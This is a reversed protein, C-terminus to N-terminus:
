GPSSPLLFYLFDQIPFYHLLIQWVPHSPISLVRCGYLSLLQRRRTALPMLDAEAELKYVPTCRLAGLIIRCAAYQIRDLHLLLSPAASAYLFSGYDLKFLILSTYLRRLTTYDVGWRQSGPPLSQSCGFTPAADAGWNFSTLASHLDSILPWALSVSMPFMLYLPLILSCPPLLPLTVSTLSFLLLPKPPLFVFAGLTLGPQLLMVHLAQNMIAVAAPLTPASTWLSGDDAYLSTRVAPDVNAFIDNVFITFLTSSLLSGQPVGSLLPRLTSTADQVRVSIQRSSLFGQLFRALNGSLGLSHLKLLLGHHWVTDFARAIDLFVAVCYRGM